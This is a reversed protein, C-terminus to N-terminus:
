LAIMWFTHTHINSHHWSSPGKVLGGCKTLLERQIHTHALRTHTHKRVHTHTFSLSVSSSLIYVLTPRPGTQNYKYLIFLLSSHQPLPPLRPSVEFFLFSSLSFLGSWSLMWGSSGQGQSATFRDGWEIPQSKKQKNHKQTLPPFILKPSFHSDNGSRCDRCSEDQEWVAFLSSSLTVWRHVHLYIHFAYIM